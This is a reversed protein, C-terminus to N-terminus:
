LKVIKANTIAHIMGYREREQARKSAGPMATGPVAKRQQVVLAEMVHLFREDLSLTIVNRRMLFQQLGETCAIFQRLRFLGSESALVAWCFLVQV